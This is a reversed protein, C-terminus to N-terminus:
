ALFSPNKSLPCRDVEFCLKEIDEVPVDELCRASEVRAQVTWKNRQASRSAISRALAKGTAETSDGVRGVRSGNLKAQLDRILAASSQGLNLRTSTQANTEYQPRLWM